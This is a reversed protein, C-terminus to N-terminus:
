IGRLTASPPVGYREQYAGAFRPLHSFGWRLAIEAVTEGPRAQRLDAHARALRVSQVYDRPSSGVYEKFHRQISRPTLGAERALRGLSLDAAPDAEILDVVKKLPAPRRAAQRDELQDSYNHPQALLLGNMLFRVWPSQEGRGALGGPDELDHVLLRVARAWSSAAPTTLDMAPQFQIPGAVPRGLLEELHRELAPREVRVHLQEYGDSLEMQALMTPSIIGATQEDVWSEGSGTVLLNHGALALNVDYYHVQETLRVRLEAGANSGYVLQLPGLDVMALDTRVEGPLGIPDLRHPTLFQGINARFEDIDSTQLVLFRELTAM